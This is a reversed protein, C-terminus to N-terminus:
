VSPLADHYHNHNGHSHTPDGADLAEELQNVYEGVLLLAIEAEGLASWMIEMGMCPDAQLLSSMASQVTMRSSMLLEVAPELEEAQRLIEEMDEVAGLVDQTLAEPTRFLDACTCGPVLQENGPISELCLDRSDPIGDGDGDLGDQGITQPTLTLALAALLPYHKM